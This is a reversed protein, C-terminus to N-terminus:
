RIGTPQNIQGLTFGPSGVVIVNGSLLKKQIRNNGTDAVFVSGSLAVAIGQPANVSGLNIGPMMFISWGTNQGTINVQIRNNLTDAIYVKNTSDVFIGRPANMKGVSIGATAGAFIAWGTALGTANVQIRNNLTDCVYVRGQLDVAIGTPRNFQGLATGSLGNAYISVIPNTTKANAVVQIRNNLTDSIYLKDNIEDYAVGQPQNVQGISVGPNAVLQWSTGGNTSRQVRNNLTDAVFIIQGSSDSSLSRPANFQGLKTGLGLGVSQWTAGDNTTRQIRNNNTDAIFLFSHELTNQTALCTNLGISINNSNINATAFDPKNDGNFDGIAVSFPGDAFPLFIDTASLIGGLGDGLAVIAKNIGAVTIFDLKHDGNFDGIGLSAPFSNPTLPLNSSSLMGGNGDGLVLSANSSLQNITIFDFRGDNNFDAVAISGPLMAGTPLPIVSSSLMGRNGDGLVISLSNTSKNNATVFDLNSDKNFDGVAVSDPSM